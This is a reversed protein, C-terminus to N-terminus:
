HITNGTLAPSKWTYGSDEWGFTPEPRAVYEKWPKKADEDSILGDSCAVM